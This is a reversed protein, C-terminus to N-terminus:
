RRLFVHNVPMEGVESRIFGSVKEDLENVEEASLFGPLFVYGNARFSEKLALTDITEM